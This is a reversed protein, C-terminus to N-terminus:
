NQPQLLSAFITLWLVSLSAALIAVRLLRRSPSPSAHNSVLQVGTKDEFRRQINYLNHKQMPNM